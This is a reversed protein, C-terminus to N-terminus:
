YKIVLECGFPIKIKNELDNMNIDNDSDSETFYKIIFSLKKLMFPYNNFKFIEKNNIEIQLHELEQPLHNLDILELDTKIINLYKINPPIDIMMKSRGNTKIYDELDLSDWSNDWPCGVIKAFQKCKYYNYILMCDKYIYINGWFEYQEFPYGLTKLNYLQAIRKDIKNSHLFESLNHLKYISSPFKVLQNNHIRLSTLNTLKKIQKSIKTLLNSDLWLTQLNSLNYINKPIQKLNNASLSLNKLQTLNGISDPVENLGCRCLSLQTLLYLNPTLILNPIQGCQINLTQINKCEPIPTDTIDKIYGSISITSINSYDEEKLKKLDEFHFIKM